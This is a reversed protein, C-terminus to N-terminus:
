SQKKTFKYITNSTYEDNRVVELLLGSSAAFCEMDATSIFHLSESTKNFAFIRTSMVETLRTLIHRRHLASDGDRVIIMGGPLLRSACGSLLRQQHEPTLYHLMDSIIFADSRPLDCDAANAAVFDIAHGLSQLRYRLFTHRAVDIKDSDYDIGLMQRHPSLMSLMYTMPGYGCGIDTIVGRKPVIADFMAYCKEMRVKVRMYWELVPGKYTYAKVLTKYFHPDSKSYVDFLRDCADRISACVTRAMERDSSFSSPHVSPLIRCVCKARCFQFPQQKSIAHDNGYFAIPVVPLDLVRALMFAGNHFRHTRGDASRTGEPFVVVSRGSQTARRVNELLRGDGDSVDIFGCNRVLWGFLLSHMVWPKALMVTRPALTLVALIDIFSLHNAVVVVPKSTDLRGITEFSVYRKAVGFFAVVSRHVLRGVAKHRLQQSVPLLSICRCVVSVIVAGVAFTGYTVATVAMRWFSNPACGQEARGSIILRFLIPQITYSTIIVSIMGLISITGISHVAPHDAFIQVGLGVIITFASLAIATKHSSLTRRGTRYETQLGDMIFISFDDGVGFIFTSVIINVVNFEIGFFGMFGLIILWSVCMPLFSIVFLEFRGYSLLLALGVLFSSIYLILNFDDVVSVAAKRVYYGRDAIVVSPDGEFLSMVSDRNAVPLVIYSILMMNPQADTLWPGVIPSAALTDLLTPEFHPRHRLLAEFRSFSGPAFGTLEAQRSLIALSSDIRADTWYSNWRDIRRQQEAPPVLLFPSVSKSSIILGKDCLSDIKLQLRASNDALEALSSGTTVLMAKHGGSNFLEQSLESAKRTKADGQFNLNSMDSDFRVDDMFFLSVVSLLIILVVLVKNRSFDYNGFRDALRSLFNDAERRKQPLLHPLFVLCFITTGVLALSAFLGLDRLLSNNTFMLGVFAGITTFSGITLPQAMEKILQEITDTHQRHTIVHISYSMAVGMVTTGAGVALLSISAGGAAILALAFLGGWLVPLTILFMSWINRFLVTVVVGIIILGIALVQMEDHKVQRANLVAITPAGYQSVEIDANRDEITSILQNIRDILAANSGTNEFHSALEVFVVLSRMDATFVYGDILNYNMDNALTGVRQLIPSGIGLPDHQMYQRIGVSLPSALLGYNQRMKRAVADPRFLSDMRVFDSDSLLVPLNRCIMEPVKEVASDDMTTRVSIGATADALLSDALEDAVDMLRLPDVEATDKATVFIMIRDMAKMRTIVEFRDTNGRDPFFSALSEDFRIGLSLVLMLAFTLVLMLVFAVRSVKLKNYILVFFKGM